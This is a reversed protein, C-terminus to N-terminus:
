KIRNTLNLILYDAHLIYNKCSSLVNMCKNIKKVLYTCYLTIYTHLFVVINLIQTFNSLIKFQSEQFCISNLHIRLVILFVLHNVHAFFINFHWCRSLWGLCYVSYCRLAGCKPLEMVSAYNVCNGRVSLSDHMSQQPFSLPKSWM